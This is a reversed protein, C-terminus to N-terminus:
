YVISSVLIESISNKFVAHNRDAKKSFLVAFPKAKQENNKHKSHNREYIVDVKHVHM